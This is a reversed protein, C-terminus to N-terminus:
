ILAATHCVHQLIWRKACSLTAAVKRLLENQLLARSLQTNRYILVPHHSTHHNSLLVVAALRAAQGINFWCAFCLLTPFHLKAMLGWGHIEHVQNPTNVV